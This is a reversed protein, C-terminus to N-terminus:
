RTRRSDRSLMRAVQDFGIPHPGTLTYAQNEHGGSLLIRSACAAVDAVDVFAIKGGNTPAILKRKKKVPDAFLSLAQMLFAPRLHTFTVGSAEVEREAARQYIGFSTLPDVGALYASLKVIHTVGAAKAAMSVNREYIAQRQPVNDPTVLFVREIGDLARSLSDRDTFDARIAQAHNCTLSSPNRSLPRYAAGSLELQRVVESGIRGSAGFVAITPKTMGHRKRAGICERSDLIRAPRNLPPRISNDLM